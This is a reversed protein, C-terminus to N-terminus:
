ATQKRPSVGDVMQSLQSATCTPTNLHHYRQRVTRVEDAVVRRVAMWVTVLSLSAATDTQHSCDSLYVVSLWWLRSFQRGHTAGVAAFIRELVLHLSPYSVYRVEKEKMFWRVPARQHANSTESHTATKQSRPGSQEGRTSELRVGASM